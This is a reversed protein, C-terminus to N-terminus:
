NLFLTRGGGCCQSSTQKPNVAITFNNGNESVEFEHKQCFKGSSSILFDQYISSLNSM